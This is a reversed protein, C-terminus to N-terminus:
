LVKCTLNVNNAIAGFIRGLHSRDRGIGCRRLRMDGSPVSLPRSISPLKLNRRALGLGNTFASSSPAVFSRLPATLRASSRLFWMAAEKCTLPIGRNGDVHEADKGPKWEM